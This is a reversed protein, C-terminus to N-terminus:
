CNWRSPALTLRVLSKLFCIKLGIIEKNKAFEKSNLLRYYVEDKFEHKQNRPEPIKPHILKM